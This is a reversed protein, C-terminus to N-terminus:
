GFSVEKGRAGQDDSSSKLPSGLKIDRHGDMMKIESPNAYPKIHIFHLIGGVNWSNEARQAPGYM